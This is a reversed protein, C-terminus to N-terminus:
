ELGPEILEYVQHTGIQGHTYHAECLSIGNLRNLKM